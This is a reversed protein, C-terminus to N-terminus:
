AIGGSKVIKSMGTNMWSRSTKAIADEVAYQNSTWGDRPAGKTLDIALDAAVPPMESNRFDIPFVLDYNTASTVKAGGAGDSEATFERGDANVTAPGASTHGFVRAKHGAKALAT